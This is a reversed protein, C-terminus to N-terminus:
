PLRFIKYKEDDKHEDCYPMTSLTTNFYNDCRKGTEDYHRCRVKMQEYSKKDNVASAENGSNKKDWGKKTVYYGNSEAYVKDKSKQASSSNVDLYRLFVIGIIGFLAMRMVSPLLNWYHGNCDGALNESLENCANITRIIDILLTISILIFCLGIIRFTEAISNEEDSM